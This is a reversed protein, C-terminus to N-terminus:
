LGIVMLLMATVTFYRDPRTATLVLGLLKLLHYWRSFTYFPADGAPRVDHLPLGSLILIFADETLCSPDLDGPSVGPVPGPSVPFLGGLPVGAVPSPMSTLGVPVGADCGPVFGEPSM